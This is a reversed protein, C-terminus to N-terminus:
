EGTKSLVFEFFEKNEIKLDVKKNEESNKIKDIIMLGKLGVNYAGNADSNEPENDGNKESHFFEGNKDPVCSLFWDEYTGSRSNRMQLSLKLLYTLSKFFDSNEKKYIEEKLENGTEFKIENEKFLNKLEATMNIEETKWQNNKKSNKLRKGFSCVTWNKDFKNKLDKFDAYNFEFEFYKKQPNYKISKFKKFFQQSKTKNEYRPHLIDVFGTRPCIKSTYYSPVYFIIGTQKGLKKFSIFQPTLQYAKLLGGFDTKNREKLVLYNLKQILMRELKQYVQKEVKFRGKKFGFNLDEFVVIANEEVVMKAIKHVVQSLYGEKLEKINEIKKWNKRAEDRDKEIKDLKKQYNVSRKFDDEIVNFSAQRIIKGSGDILTYYALHREGRDISLIRVNEINKKINLTVNDNIKLNDRAKFNLTIPCHFLFKDETFRKNKILDYKFRSENKKIPDKNTIPVNKPHTIKANISKKRYFLEAEGNLKYIVNKLNAEDFLSTWYLTHLNKRREKKSYPSFDKSYIQFLYLKGEEVLENVHSQSIQQFTIKYGQSEVERYFEDISGYKKTESFAFGFDSWEPHKNISDKFFDIMLRCDKLDFEKKEYGKQPTGNKTHTGHNRIRLIESSPAYFSISKKSFFVKPLMKSAGPLLKYAMKEYFDGEEAEKVNKFIKNSNKDM